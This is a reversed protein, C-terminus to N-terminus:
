KLFPGLQPDELIASIRVGENNIYRKRPEWWQGSARHLAVVKWDDNLVPAGSSGKMTSTEYYIYPPKNISTVVSGSLAIRKFSGGPHQIISVSAFAHLGDKTAIELTKWRRLGAPQVAVGVITCDLPRSTIFDNARLKYRIVKAARRALGGPLQLARL